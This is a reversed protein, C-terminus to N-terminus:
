ARLGQLGVLLLAALLLAFAVGSALALVAMRVLTGAVGTGYTGRMHYYLHVPAALILWGFVPLLKDSVMLTSILLGQFSLSHMSFVAHDFLVFKRQFVFILALILASLPLMLFAFNHVQEGMGEALRDPHVIALGIRPKLWDAAPRSWRGLFDPDLSSQLDSKALDAQDAPSLPGIDMISHGHHTWTGVLFLIFLAVLFLRLPPIQSARRGALYDCTLGAPDAVLRPLTRWLRGDAHFFSEFTEAILHHAHHHTDTAAQGCAHCWPGQLTTSCNACPTGIPVAHHRRWALFSGASGSDPLHDV